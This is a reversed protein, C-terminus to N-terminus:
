HGHNSDFPLYFPRKSGPAIDVFVNAEFVQHLLAANFIDKPEGTAAVQGAKLVVMEDCYMAALNLDHFVSIISMSKEEKLNRLMGCIDVQHKVDLFNTPEDLILVKPEQALARALFVRQREGGSLEGVLRKEFGVLDCLALAEQAKEIDQLREIAFSGLHPYRGLLVTELVTFGFNIQNEQTLYAIMRSRERLGYSSFPRGFLDLQGSAPRSLGALVNLLTTKGSGNPGLLGVMKGSPISLSVEKLIAKEGYSFQLNRIEYLM